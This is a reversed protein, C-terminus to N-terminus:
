PQPSDLQGVDLLAERLWAQTGPDTPAHQDLYSVQMGFKNGNRQFPLYYAHVVSGPPLSRARPSPQPQAASSNM